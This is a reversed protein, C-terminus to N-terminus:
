HCDDCDKGGKSKKKKPILFKFGLYFIALGLLIYVIIQQVM